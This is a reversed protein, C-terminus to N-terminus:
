RRADGLGHAIVDLLDAAPVLAYDEEESGHEGNPAYVVYTAGGDESYADWRIGDASTWWIADEAPIIRVSAPGAAPPVITLRPTLTEPAITKTSM